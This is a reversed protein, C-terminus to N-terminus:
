RMPPDPSLVAVGAAGDLLQHGQDDTVEVGHGSVLRHYQRRLEPRLVRATGVSTSAAPVTM